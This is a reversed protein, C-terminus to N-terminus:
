SLSTIIQFYCLFCVLIFMVAKHYSLFYCLHLFSTFPHLLVLHSNIYFFLKHCNATFEPKSTFCKDLPDQASVDKHVVPRIFGLIIHTIVIFNINIFYYYTLIKSGNRSGAAAKDPQITVTVTM